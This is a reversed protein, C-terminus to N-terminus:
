NYQNYFDTKITFPCYYDYTLRDYSVTIITPFNGYAEYFSIMETNRNNTMVLRAHGGGSRRQVVADGVNLYQYSAYIEHQQVGGSTTTANAAIKYDGVKEFKTSNEDKIERWFDSTGYTYKGSVPLNWAACIFGSCDIGYKCWYHGNEQREFSYFENSEWNKHFTEFEKVTCRNKQTYPLGQLTTGLAVETGDNLIFIQKTVWEVTDMEFARTMVDQMEPGPVSYSSIGEEGSIMAQVMAEFDFYSKVTVSVGVELSGYRLRIETTGEGVGYIRGDWYTAIDEDEAVVDVVNSLNIYQGNATVGVVDVYDICTNTELVIESKSILLQSFDSDSVALPMDPKDYYFYYEAYGLVDEFCDSVLVPVDDESQQKWTEEAKAVMPEISGLGTVLLALVLLMCMKEKLDKM